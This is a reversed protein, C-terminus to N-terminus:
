RREWDRIYEVILRWGILFFMPSVTALLLMSAIAYTENAGALWDIMVQVEIRRYYASYLCGITGV